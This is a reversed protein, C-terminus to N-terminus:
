GGKQRTEDFRRGSASGSHATKAGMYFGVVATALYEVLKPVDQGTCVLYVVAFLVLLTILSQTIVSERWLDVFYRVSVKM